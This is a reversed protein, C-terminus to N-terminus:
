RQPRIEFPEDEGLDLTARPERVGLVKGGEPESGKHSEASRDSTAKLFRSIAFGVAVSGLLFVGPNRRAMTHADPLLDDINRSRLQDAFNKINSGFQNTYEALSELNTQSLQKSAEDIVGAIKEAQEAATEKGSELKQQGASQAKEIVEAADSKLQQRDPMESKRNQLQQPETM